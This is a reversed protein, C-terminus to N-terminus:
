LKGGKFYSDIDSKQHLLQNKPVNRKEALSASKEFAKIYLDSEKLEKTFLLLDEDDYIEALSKLGEVYDAVIIKERRLVVIEENISRKNIGRSAEGYLSISFRGVAVINLRMVLEVVNFNGGSSIFSRAVADGADILCFSAHAVTLM